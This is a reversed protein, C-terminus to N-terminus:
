GLDDGQAREIVKQAVEGGLVPGVRVNTPLPRGCCGPEQPGATLQQLLSAQLHCCDQYEDVPIWRYADQLVRLAQENPDLLSLRLTLMSPYDVAAYAQLRRDYAVALEALADSDLVDSDELVQNRASANWLRNRQLARELQTLSLAWPDREIASVHEPRVVLGLERATECLVARADERGFVAPPLEGFGLEQSWSRIVRLGFSHFTYTVWAIVSSVVSGLQNRRSSTSAFLRWITPPNVSVARPICRLLSCCAASGNPSWGLTTTPSSSEAM